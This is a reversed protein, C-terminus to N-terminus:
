SREKGEIMMPSKDAVLAVNEPKNMPLSKLMDRRTRKLSDYAKMFQSKQFGNVEASTLDFAFTKMEAPSTIARIKEPLQEWAERATDYGGLQCFAKRYIDWAREATDEPDELAIAMQERVDAPKPEYHMTQLCQIVAPQIMEVPEPFCFAWARTEAEAQEKTLDKPFITRIMALIVAAEKKNM